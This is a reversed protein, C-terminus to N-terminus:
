NLGRLSLGFAISCENAVSSFLERNLKQGNKIQQIKPILLAVKTDLKAQLGEALGNLNCTAGTVLLRGINSYQKSSYFDELACSLKRSLYEIYPQLVKTKFNEPLQSSMLLDEADAAFVGYEKCARDILQESGFRQCRSYVVSQDDTIILHSSTLNIDLIAVPLGANCKSSCQLRYLRELSFSDIDVYDLSLGASEILEVYDDIIRSRCAVLLVDDEYDNANSGGIVAFDLNVEEIPYPIFDLAQISVQEELESASIKAPVSLVKIIAQSASIAVAVSKAATDSKILAVNLADAVVKINAIQNEYFAGEALPAIAFSELKPAAKSGSLEVLKVSHPGIDVGVVANPKNSFLM